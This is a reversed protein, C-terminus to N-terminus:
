LWVSPFQLLWIVVLFPMVTWLNIWLLSSNNSFACVHCNWPMASLKCYIMVRSRGHNCIKRECEYMTCKRTVKAFVYLRPANRMVHCLALFVTQYVRKQYVLQKNDLKNLRNKGTQILLPVETLIKQKYWDLYNTICYLLHPKSPRFM